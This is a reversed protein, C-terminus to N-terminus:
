HETRARGVRQALVITVVGPAVILLVAAAALGGLVGSAVIGLAVLWHAMALCAAWTARSTATPRDRILAVLASVHLVCAPVAVMLPALLAGTNGIGEGGSAALFPVYFLSALVLPVLGFVLLVSLMVTAVPAPREVPTGVPQDPTM